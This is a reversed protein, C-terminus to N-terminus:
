DLERGTAHKWFARAIREYTESDKMGVPTGDLTKGRKTFTSSGTVFIEDAAWLEERTFAREAVPIGLERVCALVAKKTIGPLILEGDEHTYLVGDKLIMCNTHSGETVFGDPRIFIAEYAGAEHAAQNAMVNGFLNLTKVNCFHHRKDEVTIFDVPTLVDPLKKASVTALLNPKTGEPPFFHTRPATGRSVQWYIMAAPASIQANLDLLIEELEERTFDPVIKMMRMSKFFRTVHDELDVPRGDIVFAADYCGDGFFLARDLFPVTLEEPAGTRGNYYAINQM